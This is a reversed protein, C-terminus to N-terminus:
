FKIRKVPNAFILYPKKLIIEKKYRPKWGNRKKSYFYSFSVGTNSAYIKAKPAVKHFAKSVSNKGRNGNCSLIYLKKIFRKKKLKKINKASLSHGFFELNGETGHVFLFVKKYKKQNSEM